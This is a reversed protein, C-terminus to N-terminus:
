VALETLVPDKDLENVEIFETGSQPICLWSRSLEYSMDGQHRIYHPNTM